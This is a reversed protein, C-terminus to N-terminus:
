SLKACHPRVAGRKTTKGDTGNEYTLSTVQDLVVTMYPLSDSLM